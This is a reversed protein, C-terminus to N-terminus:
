GDSEPIPLDSRPRVEYGADWLREVIALTLIIPDDTTRRAIVEAIIRDAELDLEPEPMFIGALDDLQRALKLIEDRIPANEPKDAESRLRAAEQRHDEPSASQEAILLEAILDLRAM